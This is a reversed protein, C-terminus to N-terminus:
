EGLVDNLVEESVYIPLPPDATVAVAIAIPSAAPRAAAIATAAPFLGPSSCPFCTRWDSVFCFAPGTVSSYGLGLLRGHPVPHYGAIWREEM